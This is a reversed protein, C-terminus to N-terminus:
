TIVENRTQHHADDGLIQQQLHFVEVLAEVVVNDQRSDSDLHRASANEREKTGAARALRHKQLAQSVNDLRVGSPDDKLATGETGTIRGPPRLKAPAATEEKM